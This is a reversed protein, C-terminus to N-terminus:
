EEGFTKNYYEEILRDLYALNQTGFEKLLTEKITDTIKIYNLEDSINNDKLSSLFRDTINLELWSNIEKTLKNEADIEKQLKKAKQNTSIAIYIFLLFLAGMVTNPLWGNFLSLIGALNLAVVILGAVGFILFIWVTGALDKYQDAKMVYVTTDDEEEYSSIDDGPTENQYTDDENTDDPDSHSYEDTEDTDLSSEETDDSYKDTFDPTENVETGDENNEELSRSPVLDSEGKEMLEREVFYFAQYLKKAQAQKRPPINVIYIENEEDYELSSKLDSYKFFRVLKEAIRKDEAQFFPVLGEAQELDEVLDIKCDSCVTFGNQYEMKCNPCWPMIEVGNKNYKSSVGSKAM